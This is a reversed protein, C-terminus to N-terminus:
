LVKRCLRPNLLSLPLEILTEIEVYLIVSVRCFKLLRSSLCIKTAQMFIQIVNEM